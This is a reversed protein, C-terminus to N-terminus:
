FQVFAQNIFMGTWFIITAGSEYAETLLKTWKPTYIAYFVVSYHSLSKLLFKWPKKLRLYPTLGSKPKIGASTTNALIMGDELYFIDYEDLTIAQGRFKTTLKETKATLLSCLHKMKTLKYFPSANTNLIINLEQGSVCVVGHDVQKEAWARLTHAHSSVDGFYSTSEKLKVVITTKMTLYGNNAGWIMNEM